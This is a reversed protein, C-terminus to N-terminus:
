KFLASSVESIPVQNHYETSKLHTQVAWLSCHLVCVNELAYMERTRLMSHEFAGSILQMYHLTRIEHTRCLRQLLNM